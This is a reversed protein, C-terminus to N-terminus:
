TVDLGFRFEVLNSTNSEKVIPSGTETKIVSYGSLGYVPNYSALNEFRMSDLVVYFRESPVEETVEGVTQNTFVTVYIKVISVSNWTFTPSTRLDGLKKSLVIYRNTQLDVKEAEFRAYNTPSSSDDSAFEVLVKVRVPSESIPESRNVLSFALKIEDMPSNQSLPVNIGDLHVHTGYYGDEDTEKIVYAGSENEEIYSM